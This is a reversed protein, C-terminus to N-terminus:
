YCMYKIIRTIVFIFLYGKQLDGSALITYLSSNHISHHVHVAM